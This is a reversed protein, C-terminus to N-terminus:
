HDTVSIAMDHLLYSFSGVLTQWSSMGSEGVVFLAINNTQRGVLFTSNVEGSEMTVNVTDVRVECTWTGEDSPITTAFLLRVGTNDNVLTYRSNNMVVNGQPDTWTVTAPPNSMLDTGCVLDLSDNLSM